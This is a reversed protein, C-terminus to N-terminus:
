SDTPEATTDAGDVTVKHHLFHETDGNDSVAAVLWISSNFIHFPALAVSFSSKKKIKSFKLLGM